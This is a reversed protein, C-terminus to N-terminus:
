REILKAGIDRITKIDTGVPMYDADNLGEDGWNDYMISIKSRAEDSDHRLMNCLDVPLEEEIVDFDKFFAGTIVPIKTIPHFFKKIEESCESIDVYYTKITEM